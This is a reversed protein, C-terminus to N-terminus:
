NNYVKTKNYTTHVIHKYHQEFNCINNKYVLM